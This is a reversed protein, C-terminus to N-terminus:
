KITIKKNSLRSKEAKFGIVHSEVSADISSTLRTPDEHSVAEIFDRVLAMDGGGHGSNKYDAVEQVKKDWVKRKGTRFDTVTFQKMDGEIYGKTGMIRTRRGGKPTFADMTFSATVGGEFVLNAVYHDPQDNDCHYVCRGYPGLKSLIEQEDRRNKLDFVHLHRKKKVYIDLASYPCTSELPCGADCRLAANEPANEKKFLFLSGDASITKCPKGILWRLIDLDHCSKALIIPTTQKSSRWNGRVYSHAMHAYQIPEQHQISVIDGIIGSDLTQKLAVFYPAYRLVHCVAVIRNHKKSQALIDRCEKESQAIPKELLVHYGLELAKMCAEYHLNDPLTIIAVDAIKGPVFAERFDNFRNKPEIGNASAMRQRRYDKLDAVGVVKLAQPYLQAYRSYTTGRSGAGLVIATLTKDTDAQLGKPLINIYDEDSLEGESSVPVALAKSDVGLLSAGITMMGLRKLFDKRNM